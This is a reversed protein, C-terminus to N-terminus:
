NPHRFVIPMTVKVNVAEGNEIGANWKPMEVIIRVAEEGLEKDFGKEIKIDSISGDKNIIFSTIFRGQYQFGHKSVEYTQESLFSLM